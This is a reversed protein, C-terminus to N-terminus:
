SGSSDPLSEKGNGVGVGNGSVSSRLIRIQGSLAEAKHGDPRIINIIQPAIGEGKIHQEDRWGLVNKATFISFSANYTGDLAKQILMDEQIGKFKKLADSFKENFTESKKDAWESFRQRDIGQSASYLALTPFRDIAVIRDAFAILAEAQAEIFKPTYKSPGKPGTKAM